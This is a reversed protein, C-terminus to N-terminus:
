LVYVIIVMICCCSTHIALWPWMISESNLTVVHFKIEVAAGKGAGSTSSYTVHTILTERCAQSATFVSLTLKFEKLDSAQCDWRQFLSTDIPALSTDLSAEEKRTSFYRSHPQTASRQKGEGLASVLLILLVPVPVQCGCLPLFM